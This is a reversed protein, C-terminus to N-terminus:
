GYRPSESGPRVLALPRDHEYSWQSLAPREAGADFQDETSGITRIESRKEQQTGLPVIIVAQGAVGQKPWRCYEGALELYSVGEVAYEPNVLQQSAVAERLGDTGSKILRKVAAITALKLTPQHQGVHCGTSAEVVQWTDMRPKGADDLPRYAVFKFPTWDPLPVPVTEVETAIFKWEGFYDLLCVKM